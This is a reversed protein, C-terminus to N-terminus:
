RSRHEADHIADLLDLSDTTGPLHNLLAARYGEMFEAVPALVGETRRLRVLKTLAAAFPEGGLAHAVAETLTM